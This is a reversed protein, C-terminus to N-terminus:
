IGCKKCDEEDMPEVGEPLQEFNLPGATRVIADYVNNRMTDNFTFMLKGSEDYVSVYDSAMDHHVYLTKENISWYGGEEVYKTKVRRHSM